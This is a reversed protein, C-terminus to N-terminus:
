AVDRYVIRAHEACYNKIEIKAGCCMMKAGIDQSYPCQNTSIKSLAVNGSYLLNKYRKNPTKRAKATIRRDLYADKKFISPSKIKLRNARAIISNKSRGLIKGIDRRAYGLIIHERLLDDEEKSWQKM